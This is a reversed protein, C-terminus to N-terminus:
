SAFLREGEKVERESSDISSGLTIHGVPVGKEGGNRVAGWAFMGLGLGAAEGAVWGGGDGM